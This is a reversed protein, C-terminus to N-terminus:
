EELIKGQKILEDKIRYLMTIPGSFVPNDYNNKSLHILQELTKDLEVIHLGSGLDIDQDFKRQEFWSALEDIEEKTHIRKYEM